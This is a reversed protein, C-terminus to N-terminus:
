LIGNVIYFVIMADALTVAGDGNVDAAAAEDENLDSVGNVFFFLAQADTLGAEGDGDIDGRVPADSEITVTGLVCTPVVDFDEGGNTTGDNSCMEPIEITIESDIAEELVKFTLTFMTGGVTTGKASSTAFAMKAVGPTPVAFAWMYSSKFIKTNIEEFYPNDEDDWVTQIELVEPDYNVWIQGNVMYHNESVMIDVTVTDGPKATVSQATFTIAHEASASLISVSMFATMMLVCSLMVALIKRM